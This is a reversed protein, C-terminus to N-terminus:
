IKSVFLYRYRNIENHLFPNGEWFFVFVGRQMWGCRVAVDLRFVVGERGYGHHAGPPALIMRLISPLQPICHQIKKMNLIYMNHIYVYKM